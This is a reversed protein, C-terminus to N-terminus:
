FFRSLSQLGFLCVFLCVMSVFNFPKCRRVDRNWACAGNTLQMKCQTKPTQGCNVPYTPPAPPSPTHAPPSPPARPTPTYVPPSPPAPTYVPPHSAPPMIVGDIVHAVGNSAYQDALIINASSSGDANTIKWNMGYKRVILVGGSATTITLGDYLDSARFQGAAVHLLLVNQLQQVSLTSALHAIAAFAADNPAFVTFPGASALTNALGTTLVASELSSLFPTGVVLDVLTSPSPPAPTYVPPHSAPPMIVGDIVHAVGNSAYQDALIINASSSGDSNTIKWNM